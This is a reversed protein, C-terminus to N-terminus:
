QTANLCSLSAKGLDTTCGLRSLSWSTQTDSTCNPLGELCASFNNIAAMDDSSCTHLNDNCKNTDFNSTSSGGCSSAKQAAGKLAAAERDCATGCGCLALLALTALALVIRM